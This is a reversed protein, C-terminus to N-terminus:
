FLDERFRGRASPTRSTATRPPRREGLPSIEGVRPLPAAEAAPRPQARRNRRPFLTSDRASRIVSLYDHDAGTFGRRRHGFLQSELLHPPVSACNFPVFPKSARDSYDHISRALIEKGTGSEGTMLVTINARAVRQTFAMAEHM